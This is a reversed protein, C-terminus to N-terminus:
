AQGRWALTETTGVVVWGPNRYGGLGFEEHAFCSHSQSGAEHRCHHHLM